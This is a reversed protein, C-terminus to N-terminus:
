SRREAMAAALSAGVLRSVLVAIYLVGTSSELICVSKASATAPIIDGYGATTLTVFSFYLLDSWGMPGRHGMGAPSFFSGPAAREIMIFLASFTIGILLYVSIAGYLKDETVRQGRLVYGLVILTTFAYFLVSAAAGSIIFEPWMRADPFWQDLFSPVMLVLAVILTWRRDALAYVAALQVLTGMLRVAVPPTYPDEGLYPYSALLAIISLLLYFCRGRARGWQVWPLMPQTRTIREQQGDHM